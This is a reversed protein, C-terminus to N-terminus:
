KIHPKNNQYSADSLVYTWSAMRNTYNQPLPESLFRAGLHCQMNDNAMNAIRSVKLTVQSEERQRENM